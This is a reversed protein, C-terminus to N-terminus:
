YGFAKRHHALFRMESETLKRRLKRPLRFMTRDKPAIKSSWLMTGSDSFSVLGRDFLADVHASLLIGNAPDLRERNNSLSWPKIHSARLIEPIACGTVACQNKWRRQLASRFEGMGLRANVLAKRTTESRIKKDKLIQEVDNFALSAVRGGNLV